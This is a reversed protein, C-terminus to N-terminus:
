RSSSGTWRIRDAELHNQFAAEHLDVARRSIVWRAGGSLECFLYEAAEDVLWPAFLDSAQVFQGLMQRLGALYQTQATAEPFLEAVTGFGSLKAAMRQKGEADGFCRWFIKGLARARTHFRLLGITTKMELLARLLL